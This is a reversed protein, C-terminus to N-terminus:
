YFSKRLRTDPHCSKFRRGSSGYYSSVFNRKLPIHELPTRYSKTTSYDAPNNRTSILRLKYFIYEHPVFGCHIIAM